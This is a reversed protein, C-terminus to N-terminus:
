GLGLDVVSAFFYKFGLLLFIERRNRYKYIIDEAQQGYKRPTESSLTFFSSETLCVAFSVESDTPIIDSVRMHKMHTKGNGHILGGHNLAQAAVQQLVM